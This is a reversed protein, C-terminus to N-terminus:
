PISEFEGLGKVLRTMIFRLKENRKMSKEFASYAKRGSDVVQKTVGARSYASMAVADAFAVFEPNKLQAAVRRAFVGPTEGSMPAQGMQALLTLCSRYLILAAMKATKSKASLRIPDTAELRKKVWLAALALLLLILLVILLIWLWGRNKEGTSPEPWQQPEPTPEAANQEPESTPEPTMEPEPSQTPEDQTGDDPPPTANDPEDSPEPTPTPEDHVGDDPTEQQEPEEHDDENSNGDDGGNAGNSADFAVWGIGHFYVETWAHADEGTLVVDQGAKARYGEVYRAPLGAIRSMVTMASAFYSCYGVRGDLVFQSVFDRDYDPYEPTLSYACNNKLWSEIAAAKDYANTHNATLDMVLAYVGAEITDPLQTCNKLMEAYDEDKGSQASIVAQRLANADSRMGGTLSYMDGAGVQRSLFLEGVSNYYLANQMDMSLSDLRTPVFLSSTGTKLFEVRANVPVFAENDHMGFVRGRVRSRTFDYFLYRAKAEPDEWSYGTYQRRVSGRLLVDADSTVKMVPEENPTAPGGLQTRLQGNVEAAHNYGETNITFPIREHTFRFYDEFVERVTQAAKELPEWTLRQVPVLLLAIAVILGVPILARWAGTDRAVEGSLAFVTLAAILGPVAIGFSMSECLAYSGILIAFYLILAIPAAGPRSTLLYMCAGLAAAAAITMLPAAQALVAAEAAADPSFWAVLWSKVAAIASLNAAAAAGCLVAAAAASAIAAVGSLSGLGCLLAAALAPLYAAPGVPLGMATLLAHASSGAMLASLAVAIGMRVIRNNKNM